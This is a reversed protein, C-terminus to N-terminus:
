DLLKGEKYSWYLYSPNSYYVSSEFYTIEDIIFSSFVDRISQILSGNEKDVSLILTSYVKGISTYSPIKFSCNTITDYNGMTIEYKEIWEDSVQEFSLSHNVAADELENMLQDDTLKSVIDGRHNKTKRGIFEILSCVYFLNDNKM